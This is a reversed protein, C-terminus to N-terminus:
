WGARTPRRSRAARLRQPEARHRQDLQQRHHRRQRGCRHHEGSWTLCSGSAAGYILSLQTASLAVAAPRPRPSSCPCTDSAVQLQDIVVGAPLTATNPRASSARSFNIVTAPTNDGALSTRSWTPSAPVRATAAARAPDRGAACDYPEVRLPGRHQHDRLEAAPPAAPAPHLHNPQDPRRRGAPGAPANQDATADFDDLKLKNGVQNYGTHGYADGDALFDVMYQLTDSGVGVVDGANPAYDWYASPTVVLPLAAALATAAVLGLKLTRHRM